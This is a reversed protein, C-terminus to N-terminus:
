EKKTDIDIHNEDFRESQCRRIIMILIMKTYKKLKKLAM